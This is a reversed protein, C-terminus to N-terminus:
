LLRRAASQSEIGSAVLGHRYCFIILELPSEVHLKRCATGLHRDVSVPNSGLRRAIEKERCGEAVLVVVEQERVTLSRLRCAEAEFRGAGVM